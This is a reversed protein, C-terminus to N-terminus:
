LLREKMLPAVIWFPESALLYVPRLVKVALQCKNEEPM